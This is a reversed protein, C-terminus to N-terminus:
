GIVSVSRSGQTAFVEYEPPPALVGVSTGMYHEPPPAVSRSQFVEHAEQQAQQVQALSERRERGSTSGEASVQVPVKLKMGSGLAGTVLSSLHLNISYQRSVLCSHFTPVVNKNRPLTMPVIIEATYFTSGKFDKSPSPFGNNGADESFGSDRRALAEASAGPGHKVWRVSAVCRSSLQVTESHHGASMDILIQARKPFDRRPSTAFFTSVKLKSSLSGLQPPQAREDTPDFRLSVRATTTVPEFHSDTTFAPLHFPKPQVAEMVLKGLKSKLLGKRITKEERLRFEPDDSPINLPPQEEFVPKVRIKKARDALLVEAGDIERVQTVKVYVAYAIKAMQPAMDDLLTGGFGSIEPDGFSPPLQLHAHQVQNSVIKHNCSKPLLQSPAVFTFPLNYTRGAEIIRPQPLSSEEIPQVLKLFQHSADTRGTVAAASSIHDVFTKEVGIFAIEIDEFRTDIQATISVTGEIKDMTSYSTIYSGHLGTSRSGANLKIEITPRCVTTMNRVKYAINTARTATSVATFSMSSSM